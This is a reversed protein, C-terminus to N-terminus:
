FFSEMTWTPFSFFFSCVHRFSLLLFTSKEKEQQTPSLNDPAEIQFHEKGKAATLGCLAHPKTSSSFAPKSKVPGCSSKEKFNVVLLDAKTM